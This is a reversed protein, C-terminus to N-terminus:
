LLGQVGNPILPNHVETLLRPLETKYDKLRGQHVDERLFSLREEEYAIAIRLCKSHVLRLFLLHHAVVDLPSVCESAVAHVM